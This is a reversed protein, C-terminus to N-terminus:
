TSDRVQRRAEDLLENYNAEFPEVLARELMCEVRWLVEQEAQDAQDEFTLSESSDVRALWEFLVLAEANTLQLTVQEGKM